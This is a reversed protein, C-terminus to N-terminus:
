DAVRLNEQLPNLAGTWAQKYTDRGLPDLHELARRYMNQVDVTYGPGGGWRGTVGRWFPLAQEGVIAPQINKEVFRQGERRAQDAAAQYDTNLKSLYQALCEKLERSGASARLDQLAQEVEEKIRGTSHRFVQETSTGALYYVNHDGYQGYRNNIARFTSVHYRGLSGVFTTLPGVSSLFSQSLRQVVTHTHHVLALDHASLVGSGEITELRKKLQDIQESFYQDQRLVVDGIWTWLASTNERVAQEGRGRRLSLQENESHFHRHPDHFFINEELFRNIREGSFSAMIQAAKLNHGEQESVFDGDDDMLATAEGQRTNVILACRQERDVADPTLLRALTPLVSNPVDTFRDVFVCLYEGQRVYEDIDERPNGAHELGKTDVVCDVQFDAPIHLLTRPLSIAISRPLSFGPLNGLNLKKFNDAVWALTNEAPGRYPLDTQTRDQAAYRKLLEAFFDPFAGFTQALKQAADKKLGLLNRLAKQVETALFEVDEDLPKGALKWQHWAFEEVMARFDEQSHYTVDIRAEDRILLQVECTTTRGSATTLVKRLVSEGEHTDRVHLGLLDCILTTKGVGVPGIFALKLKKRSTLQRIQQLRREMDTLTAIRMRTLVNEQYNERSIQGRLEHILLGLENLVGGALESM